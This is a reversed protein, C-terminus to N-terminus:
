GMKVSAKPASKLRGWKQEIEECKQSSFNCIPGVTSKEEEIGKRGKKRRMQVCMLEKKQGIEKRKM